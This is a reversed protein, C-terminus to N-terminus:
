VVQKIDIGWLICLKRLKDLTVDKNNFLIGTYVRLSFGYASLEHKYHDALKSGPMLWHHKDNQKLAEQIKQSIMYLIQQLHIVFYMILKLLM